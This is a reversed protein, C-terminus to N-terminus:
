KAVSTHEQYSQLDTDMNLDFNLSSGPRTLIRETVRSRKVWSHKLERNVLKQAVLLHM